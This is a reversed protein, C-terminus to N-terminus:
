DIKVLPHLGCLRIWRGSSESIDDLVYSNDLGTVRVRAGPWPGIAHLARVLSEVAALGYLLVGYSMRGPVSIEVHLIRSRM